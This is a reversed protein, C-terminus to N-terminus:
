RPLSILKKPAQNLVEFGTKTVLIDDEIRIGLKQPYYLGPEITVIMNEALTAQSQSSIGPWEHVATGVGHGLGHIFYKQESGLIERCAQDLESTKINPKVLNIATTQAKLVLNYLAQDTETPTGIYITRSLDSCYGNIKLGIDIVCFGPVLKDFNTRHHPEAANPGSAIIPPFSVTCDHDLAFQYVQRAADLETKFNSWHSILSAFLEDTKTVVARMAQIEASNKCAVVTELGRALTCNELARFLSIPFITERVLIRSGKTENKISDAINQTLPRVVLSPFAQKAESVEFPTLFLIAQGTQPILLLAYEPEATLIYTLISDNVEHGLSTLVLWDASQSKLYAQLAKIKEEIM